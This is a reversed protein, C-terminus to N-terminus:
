KVPNQLGTSITKKYLILTGTILIYLLIALVLLWKISSSLATLLTTTDSIHGHLTILMGANELMDLVGAVLAAKALFRGTMLLTGSFYNSLWKCLHYLFLSYFFLFIYDLWTNIIAAFVNDIPIIGTWANIVYTAKASNYAFELNLIGYPTKPTNLTAGSIAMVVMMALVGAFLLLLRYKKSFHQTM